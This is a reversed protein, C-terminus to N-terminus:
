LQTEVREIDLVDKVREFAEIMKKGIVWIEKRWPHGLFGTSFDKTLFFYYDGDPWYSPFYVNVGREEDYWQLQYQYETEPSFAFCDHQWNLAYLEEEGLECMLGNVLREEDENWIKKLQYVRHEKEIRFPLVGKRVSAPEFDFESFIQDWVRNEEDDDLVRM